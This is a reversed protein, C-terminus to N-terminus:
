KKCITTHHTSCHHPKKTWSWSDSPSTPLPPLLLVKRLLGFPWGECGPLEQLLLLLEKWQEPVNSWECELWWPCVSLCSKRMSISLPDSLCSAASHYEEEDDGKSHGGGCDETKPTRVLMIESPPLSFSLWGDQVEESLAEPTIFLKETAPSFTWSYDYPAYMAAKRRRKEEMLRRIASIVEEDEIFSEPLEDTLPDEDTSLQRRPRYCSPAPIDKLNCM